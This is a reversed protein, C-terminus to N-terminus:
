KQRKSKRKKGGLAKWARRAYHRDLRVLEVGRLDLTRRGGSPLKALVFPLCIAIVRLPQGADQSRFRIAVPETSATLRSECQWLFPPAQYIENLEALYDGRAIDEAAVRRALTSEQPKDTQASMVM